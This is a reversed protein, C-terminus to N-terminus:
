ENNFYDDMISNNYVSAKKSYDKSLEEYKVAESYLCLNDMIIAKRSYFSGMLSYYSPEDKDLTGLYHDVIDLAKNLYRFDDSDEFEYIFLIVKEYSLWASMRLSQSFFLGIDALESILSRGIKKESEDLENYEYTYNKIASAFDYNPPDLLKIIEDFIKPNKDFFNIALGADKHLLFQRIKKKKESLVNLKGSDHEDKLENTSVTDKLFLESGWEKMLYAGTDIPDIGFIMSEKMIEKSILENFEDFNIKQFGSSKLDNIFGDKIEWVECGYNKALRQMSQEKDSIVIRPEKVGEIKRAKEPFDSKYRQWENETNNTLYSDYIFKLILFSIIIVLFIGFVSM